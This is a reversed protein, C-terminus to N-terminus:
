ELYINILVVTQNDGTDMIQIEVSNEGKSATAFFEYDGDSINANDMANVIEKYFEAM